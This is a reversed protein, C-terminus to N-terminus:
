KEELVADEIIFDGVLGKIEERSKLIKIRKQFLPADLVFTEGEGGEFSPHVGYRENAARIKKIMGEDIRKGLMGSDLGEASIHTIIADFRKSVEGLEEFPDMHWLPAFHDIGLKAAIMNIRDAQYRSEIAGTVLLGVDNEIIVDKLDELEREKEGKTEKFVHEINMARAQLETLMINPVHFMFSEANQSVMTILLDVRIGFEFAKHLALTSDKGGSFLCANTM